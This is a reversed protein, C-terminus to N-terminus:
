SDPIADLMIAGLKGERLDSLLASSARRTDLKGGTTLFNRKQALTELRADDSGGLYQSLQEPCLTNLLSLLRRAVLETDYGSQNLLNLTSLKFITEEPLSQNPLIGPTDLLEVKPHVRLWQPARTVGPRDAVKLRKQGILWNILSSKGVNPMGVVCVRIARPLLGKKAQAAEKAAGTKLILNLLATKAQSGTVCLSIASLGQSQNYYHLWKLTESPRALDAKNLVLLRPKNGFLNAASPHRSAIPARADVVEVILDVWKVLENIQGFPTRSPKSARRYKNAPPRTM